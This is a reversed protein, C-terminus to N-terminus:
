SGAGVEVEVSDVGRPVVLVGLALVEDGARVELEHKGPKVARAAGPALYRGDIFVSGRDDAVTVSLEVDARKRNAKAEQKRAKSTLTKGDLWEGESACVQQECSAAAEVRTSTLLLGVFVWSRIRM